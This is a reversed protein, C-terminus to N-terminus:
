EFPIHVLPIGRISRINDLRDDFFIHPRMEEIVPRKPRDGLYYAEDVSVNLARLTNLMRKHAPATRATVIATRLLRSYTSDEESRKRELRQILSVRQLLGALPGMPLPEESHREEHADYEQLGQTEFIKDSSKDGIVGDFDFALRLERDEPDSEIPGNDLVLGAAHGAHLAGRVDRENASLFLLSGYANLYNYNERGSTFCAVRIDLNHHKISNFARLGTEPSNRSFMVVDVLRRGPFLVNFYLLRSIFPFAIGPALPVNMHEMQYESYKKVGERQFVEDSERMDFLASSTVAVVLREELPTCQAEQAKDENTM